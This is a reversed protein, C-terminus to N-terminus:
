GSLDFNYRLLAEKLSQFWLETTVHTQIPPYRVLIKKLFAEQVVFVSGIVHESTM